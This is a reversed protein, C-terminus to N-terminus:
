CNSRLRSSPPRAPRRRRPRRAGGAFRSFLTRWNLAPRAPACYEPAKNLGLEGVVRKALAIDSFAEMYTRVQPEDVMQSTLLQEPSIIHMQRADITVAAAAAYRPSISWIVMAAFGTLLAAFALIGWKHRAVIELPNPGGDPAAAHSPWSEAPAPDFPAVARYAAGDARRSPDPAIHTTM